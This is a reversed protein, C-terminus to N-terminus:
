LAAYFAALVRAGVPGAGNTPQGDLEDIATLEKLTSAVYLEDAGEAAPIPRVEVPVGADYAADILASRTVGALLRGDVPPTVLRDGIVAFVNSRTGELFFGEDDVWLVEDVGSEAVARRSFARSTHKVTGDLWVPPVFVRTACRFPNPVSPLPAARVVRAGGATLTVRVMAEQGLAEAADELEAAIRDGDPDRLGMALASACLREIHEDLRFLAGDYTRLTEFVAMGLTFGPDAADLEIRGDPSRQGNFLVVVPKDSPV